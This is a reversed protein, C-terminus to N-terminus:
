FWYGLNISFSPKKYYDSYGVTLELPGFESDVAYTIGGGLVRKYDEFPGFESNHMLYNGAVTLYYIDGIKMRLGGYGIFAYQELLAVTPIGLFPLHNKFYVSYDEGGAINTKYILDGDGIIARGNLKSLIALRRTIPWVKRSKVLLIPTLSGNNSIVDVLSLESYFYGGKSPFYFDDLHDVSLYAYYNTMFANDPPMLPMEEFNRAFTNGNFYELKIGAGFNAMNWLYKYIYASGSGYFLEMSYRKEGESFIDFNKYKGAFKLGMVPFNNKHYESFLKIGPNPSIEVSASFLGHGKGSGRQTINLLVAMADTSNLRAGVNLKSVKKERLTLNLIKNVPDGSFSYYIQSFSGIGYLRDITNKIEEASYLGPFELPIKNRILQEDMSFDGSIAVDTILWKDSMVFDRSKEKRELKYRKKIERLEDVVGYTSEMGQKILTDIAELNFSATNYDKTYPRIVVDCLGKNTSDKRGIYFSVLQNFLKRMSKLKKRDYLDISLDVGIIIDAGMKKAVDTPFNNSVGGDTLIYGNHEGPVFVGPIAMSSFIATPFFGNDIVVENGTELDTAICAFSTPFEKFNANDPLNGALGCFLNLVNQGSVLSNPLTLKKEENFPLSLFYRQKLAQENPSLYRRPIEDSFLKIWNQKRAFNEIESASYGISYLGGVVGGISTGVIIDIPIGEEEFVKLVGIHTFGKAGGGSLVLAVKPKQAFSFLTATLLFIISLIVIRHM